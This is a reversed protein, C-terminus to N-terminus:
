SIRSSFRGTHLLMTTFSFGVIPEANKPFNGKSRMGFNIFPTLAYKNVRVFLKQINYWIIRSFTQRPGVYSRFPNIEGSVLARLSSIAEQVNVDNGEENCETHSHDESSSNSPKEKLM